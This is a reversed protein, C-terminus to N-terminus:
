NRKLLIGTASSREDTKEAIPVQPQEVLQLLREKAHRIHQSMLQSALKGDRDKVAKAIKEHEEHSLNLNGPSRLSLTRWRLTLDRFSELISILRQNHSHDTLYTHFKIESQLFKDVNMEKVSLLGERILADIQRRDDATMNNVAREIARSELVERIEYLEELDRRTIETVFFGVRPVVRVLGDRRLRLLAERVPTRSINLQTTLQDIRLQIGPTFTLNLIADKIWQYAWDTLGVPKEPRTFHDL